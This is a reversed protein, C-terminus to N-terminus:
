GLERPLGAEYVIEKQMTEIRSFIEKLLTQEIRTLKKPNIQNDPPRHESQIAAVQRAFRLQMLFAYAQEFERCTDGTLLGREELLRLRESTNTETFGHKLSHIRAFDVIPVMVKKINFTDRHEGKSAVLFNGFFGLPPKFHQANMALYGLFLPWEALKEQLHARLREVLTPDGYGCRFDFFISSNLLDEPSGFRIWSRFYEKWVSLPQCWKPTQAMIEGPCYSYGIDDLAACLKRGIELFYQQVERDSEGDGDQYVIANDQDTKLTQEKRGESGLVMLAFPRPAPGQEKLIIAMVRHLISDSIATVLRTLHGAKAGGAILAQVIGPLQAYLQRIAAIDTAGSIEGLLLLPSRGQAALIDQGSLMAVVLQDNDTVALYKRKEQMMTLLAEFILAQGPITRLPTSMVRGVPTALDLGAAVVKERLDHDTVIGLYEGNPATILISGHNRDSMLTAAQQLPMDFPCSLPKKSALDIIPRNFFPLGEEGSQLASAVIAAYSRDLMRKGFTNTFFDLFDPFRNCLDLFHPRPLLLFQCEGTTRLSRIALGNNILMSIGGFLDGEGMVTGPTKRDDNDLYREASGQFLVYLAEVPSLGQTFLVTNAAHAVPRMETAVADRTEEPLSSFPATRALFAALLDNM